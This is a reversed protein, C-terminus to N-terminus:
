RRNCRSGACFFVGWQGALLHEVGAFGTHSLRACGTLRVSGDSMAAMDSTPIWPVASVDSPPQYANVAQIFAEATMPQGTNIVTLSLRVVRESGEVSTFQMRIGNDDPLEDPIWDPPIRISFVGSSHEFTQFGADPADPTAVLILPEGNGNGTTCAALVLLFIFPFAIHKMDSNYRGRIM